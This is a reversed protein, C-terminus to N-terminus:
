CWCCCRWLDRRKFESNTQLFLLPHHTLFSRRNLWNRVIRKSMAIMLLILNVWIFPVTGLISGRNVRLRLVINVLISFGSDLRRTILPLNKNVLCAVGKLHLIKRPLVLLIFPTTFIMVYFWSLLGIKSSQWTSLQKPYTWFQVRSHFSLSSHCKM